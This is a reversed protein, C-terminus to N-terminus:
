MKDNNVNHKSKLIRGTVDCDWSGHIEGRGGQVIINLVKDSLIMTISVEKARAVLPTDTPYNRHNDDDTQSVTTFAVM